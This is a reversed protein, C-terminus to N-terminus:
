NLLINPVKCLTRLISLEPTWFLPTGSYVYTMSTNMHELKKKCTYPVMHESLMVGHMYLARSYAHM